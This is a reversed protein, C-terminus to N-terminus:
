NERMITAPSVVSARRAPLMSAIIIAAAPLLPAILWVLFPPWTVVTIGAIMVRLLAYSLSTGIATGFLALGGANKVVLLVIRWRQAGLAIRLARERQRQREADGQSSLLGLISLVLGTVASAGGILTAIRLGALGSHALQGEFTEIGIPASSGGPVNQIKQRLDAAISRNWKSDKLILTMRPPCDQWMLLYIAPEEHQEFTGFVQSRVVGIIEARNGSDDIVGAGLPKGNFYLDAAEQNIVAVRVQGRAGNEPFLHGAILPMDLARFYNASVLNASLQIGDVPPALPARFHAGRIPNPADPQDLYGYYITPRRQQEAEGTKTKVVGIIEIADEASDRIVAGATKRGFLEKAAEENVVAVRHGQDGLGFMRGAIPQNDLLKLTDPTLWAIDMAIDRYQSSFQQVKFTRWTPQNGPLRATWALPSLGAVSKARKEVEIFYNTDVEPGDLRVQAQVTLLIPNGLRHGASTELASHLGSLLLATCIVLMCCAMIQGVVLASRLGQIAKSPSGTERQLVIWPRDTVTGIVPMMGCFITIFVCILSAFVTPFFHLRFTLRQADEAFLFVPLVRATMIGLMLGVAGGAISIVVSDAFLERLLEARSAGLAVRLSTEHSRRLARGLLFSAVNICAIFFVVGASFTLFLRVRALGRTMNPAIGTFAAVSMDHLGAPGSRLAAQAQHTSVDERLHALTWLDRRDRSGGELDETSQIWLDVKQDSYLGELNEPAMGGIRYEANDIRVNSGLADQKGGLESEWIPHSLVVGDTLPIALAGALDPTVAAITAIEAHGDITIEAPRVRVAGIWDFVGHTSQLRQYDDPSLPGADRSRDQKFISVIGASTKHPSAPRALGQLFGYVAANSGVGLAITLLLASTLGPARAFARASRRIQPLAPSLIV